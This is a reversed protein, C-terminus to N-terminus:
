KVEKGNSKYMTLSVGGDIMEPNSSLYKGRNLWAYRGDIRAEFTPVLAGFTGANRVIIVEGNDAQWLYRADLTAPNSFNQYDAGGALIKGTINGILDGGTIPIINRIGRKSIGISISAGLTVTESIIQEEPKESPTTKRYDWPQYPIDTPKSIRVSNEANNRDEFDSVDYVTIKLIKASLDVIRRSVFKGTNLWAFFSDNPAEFDMVLRVDNENIGTGANRLYIYKGDNTRIVLLQEIEIINNPLILQFDLGGPLISGQIRTGTVKGDRVVLVQRQGYPTNGIDYIQDLQMRVEFVEVGKEPVPIGDPMGCTWSRHPILTKVTDSCSSCLSLILMLIFYFSKYKYTM